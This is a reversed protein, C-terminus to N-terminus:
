LSHHHEVQFGTHGSIKKWSTIINNFREASDDSKREITYKREYDDLISELRAKLREKTEYSNAGFSIKLVPYETWDKELNEM